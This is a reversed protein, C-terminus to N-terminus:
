LTCSCKRVESHSEETVAGGRLDKQRPNQRVGKDETLQRLFSESKNKKTKFKGMVQPLPTFYFTSSDVLTFRIHKHVAM